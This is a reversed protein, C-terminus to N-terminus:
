TLPFLFVWVPLLVVLFGFSVLIVSAIFPRDLDYVESLVLTMFAPPMGSQLVIGLRPEPDVGLLTLGMGIILPVLIMKITLCPLIQPWQRSQRSRGLCMGIYVLGLILLGWALTVLGQLFWQPLSFQRLVLGLGLCWLTPNRLIHWLRQKHSYVKESFSAALAIGAIFSIFLSGLLDYFLAWSFHEAGVLSFAIPYGMFGTNGVMTALIFSGATGRSKAPAYWLWLYALGVGLGMGLWAVLPALSINGTLDATTVFAIVSLPAGVWFLFQAVWGTMPPPLRKVIIMGSCTSLGILAYLRLLTSAIATTDM